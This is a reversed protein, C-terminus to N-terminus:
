CFNTVEYKIIIYCYFDYWTAYFMSMEQINLTMDLLDSNLFTVTGISGFGFKFFAKLQILILLIWVFFDCITTVKSFPFKKPSNWENQFIFRKEIFKM